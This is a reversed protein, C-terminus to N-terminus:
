QVAPKLKTKSSLGTVPCLTISNKENLRFLCVIKDKTSACTFVFNVIELLIKLKGFEVKNKRKKFTVFKKLGKKKKKKFPMAM